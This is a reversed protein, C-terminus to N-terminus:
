LVATDLRHCWNSPKPSFSLDCIWTVDKSDSSDGWLMELTFCVWFDRLGSFRWWSCLGETQKEERRHHIHSDLCPVTFSLPCPSCSRSVHFNCCGCLTAISILSLCVRERNLHDCGWAPFALYGWLYCEAVLLPSPCPFLLISPRLSLRANTHLYPFTGSSLCHLSSSSNKMPHLDERITKMSM